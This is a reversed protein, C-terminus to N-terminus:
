LKLGFIQEMFITIKSHGLEKRELVIEDNRRTKVLSGTTSEEGM